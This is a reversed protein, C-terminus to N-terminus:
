KVGSTDAEQQVRDVANAQANSLAHKQASDDADTVTNPDTKLWTAYSQWQGYYRVYYTPILDVVQDTQKDMQWRYGLQIREIRNRHYGQKVLTDIVNQTPQVAIATQDSPVPVQLNSNAFSAELLGTSDGPTIQVAGRTTQQFVPFGEVYNRFSISGTNDDYSFYRINRLTIGVQKLTQFSNELKETMTKAQKKGYESYTVLHGSKAVNLKQSGSTYETGDSDSRSKISSSDVKGMLNNVFENDPTYAVLYSYPNMRFSETFLMQVTKNMAIYKVPVTFDAGKVLKTLASYDGKVKAQRITDTKDNMFTLTLQDKGQAVSLRDFVFDSASQKVKQKFTDAFLQWTIRDPYIMMITNKQNIREVYDKTNLKTPDGIKALSWKAMQKQLNSMLNNKRNYVLKETDDNHYIVRIPLYVDGLSQMTDTQVADANSNVDQTPRNFVTNHTMILYTLVFSIAVAIILTVRLLVSSLKTM